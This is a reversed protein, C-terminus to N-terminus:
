GAVFYYFLPDNNDLVGTYLADGAILREAVSVFIGRDLSRDPVLRPVISVWTLLVLSSLIPDFRAIKGSRRVLLTDVASM